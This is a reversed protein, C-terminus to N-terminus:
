TSMHNTDHTGSLRANNLLIDLKGFTSVTTRIAEQCDTEQTVDLRIVHAKSSAQTLDAVVQQAQTELIDAVVVQAGEQAFLRAEAQGM